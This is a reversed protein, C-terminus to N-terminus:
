GKTEQNLRNIERMIRTQHGPLTIGIEELESKNHIAGVIRLTCYGNEVFLSYHQPLKVIDTLWIRVVDKESEDENDDVINEIPETRQQITSDMEMQETIDNIVLAKKANKNKTYVVACTLICLLTIGVSIWPIYTTQIQTSTGGVPASFITSSPYISHTTEIPHASPSLSPDSSPWRSPYATPHKSPTNSPFTPFGSPVSSPSVSPITSPGASPNGTNLDLYMWKYLPRLEEGAFVYLVDYVVIPSSYATKFPLHDTSTITATQPDMLHVLDSYYPWDHLGGIIYIIDKYFAARLGMLETTLPDVYMWSKHTINMLHIRENTALYSETSVYDAGGFVWLYDNTVICAASARVANMPPPNHTWQLTSLHLIQLKNHVHATTNYYGGIVFLDDNSSALCARPGMEIPVDIANTAFQQTNMHYMALTLSNYDVLYLIHGKQTWGQGVASTNIPLANEGAYAFSNTDTHYTMMQRRHPNGGLLFITHNYSGIAM